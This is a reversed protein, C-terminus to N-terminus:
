AYVAHRERWLAEHYTLFQHSGAKGLYRELMRPETKTLDVIILGDLANGFAPDINFGAM